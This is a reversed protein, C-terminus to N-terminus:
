DDLLSVIKWGLLFLANMIYPRLLAPVLMQTHQEEIWRLTRQFIILERPKEQEDNKVESTSTV